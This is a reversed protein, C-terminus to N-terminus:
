KDDALGNSLSFREFNQLPLKDQSTGSIVDNM